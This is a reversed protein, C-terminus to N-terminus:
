LYGLDTLRQKILEEDEEDYGEGSAAHVFALMELTKIIKAAGGEPTEQDTFVEVEFVPPQEYPEDIGAIHRIEGAQVRAYFGTNDRKMCIALPCNVYVEVFRGLQARIAERTSKFPPVVPVIANVGNRNLLKCIYCIRKLHTELDERTFGLNPSLERRLEKGDLVEVALGRELLKEEVLRALTTKGAGTLGTLWLTFGQEM